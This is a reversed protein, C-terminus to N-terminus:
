GGGIGLLPALINEQLISVDLIGIPDSKYSGDKATLQYWQNNLYMGFQHLAQPRFATDTKSVEFEEALKKLFDEESLGALDKAIRHYDLIALQAAPFITTLFYQADESDPLEKSM